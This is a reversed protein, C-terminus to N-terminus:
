TFLPTIVPDPATAVKVASSAALASRRGESSHEKSNCGVLIGLNQKQPQVIRALRRQHMHQLILPKRLV